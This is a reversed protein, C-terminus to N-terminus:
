PLRRLEEVPDTTEAVGDWSIIVSASAISISFSPLEEEVGVASDGATPFPGLAGLCDVGEAHLAM